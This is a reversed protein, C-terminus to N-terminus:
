NTQCELERLVQEDTVEEWSVVLARVLERPLIFMWPTGKSVRSCLTKGEIGADRCYMWPPPGANHPGTALVVKYWKNASSSM